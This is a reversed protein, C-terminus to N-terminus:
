FWLFWLTPVRRQTNKTRSSRTNSSINCLGKKPLITSLELTQCIIKMCSPSYFSVSSFDGRQGPSQRGCLLFTLVEEFSQIQNICIHRSQWIRQQDFSLFELESVRVLYILQFRFYKRSRFVLFCFHSVSNNWKM